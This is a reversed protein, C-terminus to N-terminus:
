PTPTGMARSYFPRHRPAVLVSKQAVVISFDPPYRQGGAVGSGPLSSARFSSSPSCNILNALSNTLSFTPSSQPCPTDTSPNNLLNSTPSTSM